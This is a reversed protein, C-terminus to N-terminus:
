DYCLHDVYYKHTDWVFCYILMMFPLYVPAKGIVAGVYRAQSSKFTDHLDKYQCAETKGVGKRKRLTFCVFFFMWYVCPDM